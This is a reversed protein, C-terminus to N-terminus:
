KSQFHVYGEDQFKKLDAIRRQADMGVRKYHKIAIDIFLDYFNKMSRNWDIEEYVQAITYNLRVQGTGLNEIRYADSPLYIFPAVRIYELSRTNSKTSSKTHGIEAILFIAKDNALFRLLNAVACIGGDSYKTEDLDKTKIDVGYVQHQYEFSCDYITRRGPRALPIWNNQACLITWSDHIRAEIMAGFARSDERAHMASRLEEFISTYEKELCESIKQVNM